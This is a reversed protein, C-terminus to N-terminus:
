GRIFLTRSLAVFLRIAPGVIAYMSEWVSIRPCSTSEPELLPEELAFVSLLVVDVWVIVGSWADDTMAPALWVEAAPLSPDEAVAVAVLEVLEVLEDVAVAVSEEAAPLAPDEAMAVAVLEVLEDIAVAVSEEAAVAVLEAVALLAEAGLSLPPGLM